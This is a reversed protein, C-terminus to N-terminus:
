AAQPTSEKVIADKRELEALKRELEELPMDSIDDGSKTILTSQEGWKEPRLAKLHKFRVEIRLKARMIVDPDVVRRARGNKTVTRFDNKMDDAIKLVQEEFVNLRDNISERYLAAFESHEKLWQNCRRMTPLHEDECIDLLLEGCSIRECIEGALPESYAIANKIANRKAAREQIIREQEEREADKRRKIEAKWAESEAEKGQWFVREPNFLEEDSVHSFDFQPQSIM